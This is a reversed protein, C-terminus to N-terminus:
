LDTYKTKCGFFYYRHRMNRVKKGGISNFPSFKLCGISMLFYLVYENMNRVKSKKIANDYHV